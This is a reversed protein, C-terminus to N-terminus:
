EAIKLSPAVLEIRNILFKIPNDTELDDGGTVGQPVKGDVRDYIEKIAPIDGELAKKIHARVIADMKNRVPAEVDDKLALRLADRMEKQKTPGSNANGAM